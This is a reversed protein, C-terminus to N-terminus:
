ARSPAMAAVAANVADVVGLEPDTCVMGVALDVLQKDQGHQRLVERLARWDEVPVGTDFFDAEIAKGQIRFLTDRTRWGVDSAAEAYARHLVEALEWPWKLAETPYKGAVVPWFAEDFNLHGTILALPRPDKARTSTVHIENRGDSVVFKAPPMLSPM